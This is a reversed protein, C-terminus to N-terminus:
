LRFFGNVNANHPMICFFYQCIKLLESIRTSDNITNFFIVWQKEALEDYYDNGKTNLFNKLLCFEEFADDIIIGKNRLDTVIM